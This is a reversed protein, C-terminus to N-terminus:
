KKFSVTAKEIIVPTVPVDQMYGMRTTQKQAIKDVVDMGEVVKGFVAYGYGNVTANKYDLFSNDVVNIFFQSTASHPDNTRAMAITGRRNKLGNAAENQIPTKNAKEEYDTTLGGGQIMFGSIVRHFVTNDYFGSEVYGLFNKVTNPAKEGDLEIVINGENTQLTVYAIGAADANNVQAMFLVGTLILLIKKM